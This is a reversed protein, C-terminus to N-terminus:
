DGARLCGKAAATGAGCPVRGLGTLNIVTTSLGGISGHASGGTACYAERAGSETKKLLLAWAVTATEMEFDGGSILALSGDNFEVQHRSASSQSSIAAAWPAGAVSGADFTESCETGRCINVQGEVPNESCSQMVNLKALDLLLAAGERKVTSGSGAGVCMVPGLATETAQAAFLAGLLPLPRPPVDGPLTALPAGAPPEVTLEYWGLGIRNGFRVASTGAAKPSAWGNPNDFSLEAGGAPALKGQWEACSPPRSASGASALGGAGSASGALNLSGAGGGAGGHGGNGAGDDESGCGVSLSAAVLIWGGIVMRGLM